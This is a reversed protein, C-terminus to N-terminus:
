SQASFILLELFDKTWSLGPCKTGKTWMNLVLLNLKKKEEYILVKKRYGLPDVITTGIIHM